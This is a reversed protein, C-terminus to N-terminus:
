KETMDPRDRSLLIFSRAITGLKHNFLNEGRSDIFCFLYHFYLLISVSVAPIAAAVAPFTLLDEVKCGSFFLCKTASNQVYNNFYKVQSHGIILAMVFACFKFDFESICSLVFCLIM